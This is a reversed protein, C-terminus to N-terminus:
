ELILNFIVNKFYKLISTDNKKFLFEDKNDDNNKGEGFLFNSAGENNNKLM